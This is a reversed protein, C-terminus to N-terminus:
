GDPLELFRPAIEPALWVLDNSCHFVVGAQHACGALVTIIAPTPTRRKAVTTATAVDPSLHVYQRRMPKLGEARIRALAAGTTGHYLRDPPVAPANEIRGAVSHGYRARIRGDRIEYRQKDAAAMMELIDIASLRRWEASHRAVAAVLDDLAVWGSGDLTLGYQDPHHRLAHSIVRSLRIHRNSM